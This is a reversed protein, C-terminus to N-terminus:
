ASFYRSQSHLSILATTSQEPHLQDGEDMTLDIESANLWSLQQRSDSVNPCAPYGFSYRSGRYRQALIDKLETPEENKFGCEIRIISHVHEALAEALQVALGHFYLYDSYSNSVFLEQAFLSAKSGMTVAQMPLIDTPQGRVIDRYFDSVCYQNGSKQRPLNFSGLLINTKPDFVLIKNGDRGCPFYGYVAKPELLQDSKIRDIWEELIPVAKESLFETYEEKSQNKARRMQWQGSFLSNIDLYNILEDLVL